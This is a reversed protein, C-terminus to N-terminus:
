ARWWAGVRWCDHWNLVAVVWHTLISFYTMLVSLCSVTWLTIDKNKVDESQYGLPKNKLVIKNKIKKFFSKM